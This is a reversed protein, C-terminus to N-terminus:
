ALDSGSLLHFNQTLAISLFYNPAIVLPLVGIQLSFDIELENEPIKIGRALWGLNIANNFRRSSAKLIKPCAEEPAKLVGIPLRVGIDTVDGASNGPVATFSKRGGNFEYIAM